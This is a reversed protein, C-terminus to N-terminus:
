GNQAEGLANKFFSRANATTTDAVQTDPVGWEKAVAKAIYTVYSPENRKGRFPVPSMYPCDTELLLRDKPCAAIVQRLKHSSPFTVPGDVGIWCGLDLVTQLDDVDGSFCHFVTNPLRGKFDNLIALTEPMASRSHLIMPKDLEIALEIHERFARIQDERPSNDYHYDLGTEGIALTKKHASLERIIEVCRIDWSKSDHPHVGVTAFINPYRDALDVAARSSDIDYGCVILREVGAQMARAIVSDLDDAFRPDTLHTHTDILLGM